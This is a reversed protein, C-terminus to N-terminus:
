CKGVGIYLTPEVVRIECGKGWGCIVAAHAAGCDAAHVAHLEREMRLDMRVPKDVWEGVLLQM